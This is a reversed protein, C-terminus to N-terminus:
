YQLIQLSGIMSSNIQIKSNKLWELLQLEQHSLHKCKGEERSTLNLVLLIFNTICTAKAQGKSSKKRLSEAPSAAPCDADCISILRMLGVCSMSVLCLCVSRPETHLSTHSPSRHYECEASHWLPPLETHLSCHQHKCSQDLHNLDTWFYPFVSLSHGGRDQYTAASGIVSNEADLTLTNFTLKYITAM